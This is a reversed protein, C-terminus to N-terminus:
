ARVEILIQFEGEGGAQPKNYNVISIDKVWGLKKLSKIWINLDQSRSAFGTVRVKNREYVIPEDKRIKGSVPFVSMEALKVSVPVSAALGDAMFSLVPGRSMDGGLLEKKRAVERELNEIQTIKTQNNAVKEDLEAYKNGYQRGVILNVTLLVFMAVVASVLSTRFIKRQKIEVRMKDLLGSEISSVTLYGIEAALVNCFPIVSAPKLTIDGIRTEEDREKEVMSVESLREESFVFRYRGAQFAMQSKYVDQKLVAGAFPGLIIQSFYIKEQMFKELWPEIWETRIVGAFVQETVRVSQAYFDQAQTNPVVQKLIEAGSESFSIMKKLLVGKGTVSLFIATKGKLKQIAEDTSIHTLQEVVQLNQKNKRISVLNFEVQERSLVVLEVGYLLNGSEIHLAPLKM